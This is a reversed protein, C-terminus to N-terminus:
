SHAAETERGHGHGHEEGHAEHEGHHSLLSIFVATLFMFIFAQLVAVFLELFSILVAFVGAALTIGSVGLVGTGAKLATYGFLVLTALLTHGAVMNAFLRIALAAPKIIHGALEVPVMIPFLWWPAGGLLHHAWGKLGLEKLGHIQIVLFSVFALAATVALNGTATGGIWTKGGTLKDIGLVHQLDMLPILGLLNNMLIFFFVALLYPLYANTAREGIVPRIMQDRLYTIMVEVLQGIRGKTLYRDNGQSAPGTAISRAAILLVWLVLLTAAVLTVMHMTLVPMGDMVILPKDLVHDIANESALLLM